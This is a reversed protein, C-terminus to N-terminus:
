GTSSSHSINLHVTQDEVPVNIVSIRVTGESKMKM